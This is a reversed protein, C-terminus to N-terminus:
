SEGDGDRRLRTLLRDLASAFERKARADYPPPGHAGGGTGAGNGALERVEELLRLTAQDAEISAVTHEVGRVDLAAVGRSVLRAALRLDRTIVLDGPAADHAILEPAHTGEVLVSEIGLREAARDVVDLADRPAVDAEVWIKMQAGM